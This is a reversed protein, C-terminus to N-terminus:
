ARKEKRGGDLEEALTKIGAPRFTVAVKRKGGDYDIQQVLLHIVRAQERPTLTGWVPDFVSMARATEDADLLQHHIAHVQERVKRVRTEVLGVREQLDALRGILPGNEEGPKIQLTM